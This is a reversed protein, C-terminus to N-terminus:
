GLQIVFRCPKGNRRPSDTVQATVPRGSVVEFIRQNNAKSCDCYPDDPSPERKPSWGCGCKDTPYVLTITDGERRCNEAGVIKGMLEVLKDVDGASDAVLKQRFDLRACCQRGRQELLKVLTARDLNTEETRIFQTLWDHIAAAKAPDGASTPSPTEGEAATLVTPLSALGVCTAACCLTNQFFTRRDISKSM